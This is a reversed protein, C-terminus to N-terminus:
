DAWIPARSLNPFRTNSNKLIEYNTNVGLCTDMLRLLAESEVKLTDRNNRGAANEM